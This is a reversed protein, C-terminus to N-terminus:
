FILPYSRRVGSATPLLPYITSKAALILQSKESGLAYPTSACLM